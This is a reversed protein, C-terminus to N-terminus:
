GNSVEITVAGRHLLEALKIRKEVERVKRRRFEVAQTSYRTNVYEEVPSESYHSTVPPERTRVFEGLADRLLTGLDVGLTAKQLEMADDGEFDLTIKVLTTM